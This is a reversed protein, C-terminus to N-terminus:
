QLPLILVRGQLSSRIRREAVIRARLDGKGRGSERSNMEVM